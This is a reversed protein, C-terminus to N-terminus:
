TATFTPVDCFLCRYYGNAKDWTAVLKIGGTLTHMSVTDSHIPVSQNKTLGLAEKLEDNVEKLRTALWEVAEIPWRTHDYFGKHRDIEVVDFIAALRTVEDKNLM